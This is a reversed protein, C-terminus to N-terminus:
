DWDVRITYNQMLDKAIYVYNNISPYYYTSSNFYALVSYSIGVPMDQFEVWGESNTKGIAYAEEILEQYYYSVGSYRPYPILAVGIDAIPEEQYGKVIKIKANGINLFPNVEIIKDEGAIVQFYEETQYIKNNKEATIYYGYQGQLIKGITCIGNADTSNYYIREGKPISSYISVKAGIFGNKNDDIVKISVTGSQNLLVTLNSLPDKDDDDKGCSNFVAVALVLAVFLWFNLFRKKMMANFNFKNFM